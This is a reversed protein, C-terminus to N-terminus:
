TLGYSDQPESYELTLHVGSEYARKEGSMDESISGTQVNSLDDPYLQMTGDLIWM